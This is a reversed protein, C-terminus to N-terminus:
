REHKGDDLDDRQGAGFTITPVFNLTPLTLTTAASFSM